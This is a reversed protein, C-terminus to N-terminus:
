ETRYQKNGWGFREDCWMYFPPKLLTWFIQQVMQDITYPMSKSKHKNPEKWGLEGTINMVRPLFKPNKMKGFMKHLDKLDHAHWTACYPFLLWFKGHNMLHLLGPTTPEGTWEDGCEPRDGFWGSHRPFSSILISIPTPFVQKTKIYQRKKWPIWKHLKKSIHIFRISVMQLNNRNHPSMHTWVWTALHRDSKLNYRMYKNTRFFIMCM